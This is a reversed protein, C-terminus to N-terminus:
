IWVVLVMQGFRICHLKQGVVLRKKFQAVNKM